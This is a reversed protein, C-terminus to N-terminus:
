GQKMGCTNAQENVIAIIKTENEKDVTLDYGVYGRMQVSNVQIDLLNFTKLLKQPYLGNRLDKIQDGLEKNEISQYLKKADTPKLHFSRQILSFLGINKLLHAINM